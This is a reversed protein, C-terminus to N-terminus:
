GELVDKVQKLLDEPEFPKLLFRLEKKWGERLRQLNEEAGTIFLTKMEPRAEVLTVALELGTIEPMDFDTVLLQIGGEQARAVELAQQGSGATLVHYGASGLVEEVFNRVAEDDDVVLVTGKEPGELHLAPFYLDFTTGEGAQSQLQLFGGSQRVFAEVLALGLGKSGPKTSFFPDFVRQQIAPELGVGTDKIRLRVYRKPEPGPTEYRSTSIELSGGEPMADWANRTLELIVEQVRQVDTEVPWVWDGLSLNLRIRETALQDRLGLIVSNLNCVEPHLPERGALQRLVRILEKGREMASMISNARRLVKEDATGSRLLLEAHGSVATVMNALEHALGRYARTITERPLAEAMEPVEAEAAELEEVQALTGVVQGGRDRIESLLASVEVLSGDKRSLRIQLRAQGKGKQVIESLGEEFRGKEPEPLIPLPYGLVENQAWGFFQEALRNWSIVDGKRNVAFAVSPWSKIVSRFTESTEELLRFTSRQQIVEALVAAVSRLLDIEQQQFPEGTTRYVELVGFPRVGASIIATASSVVDYDPVPAEEEGERRRGVPPRILRERTWDSGALPVVGEPRYECIRCHSVRLPTRLLDVVREMIQPLSLPGLALRSIQASLMEARSAPSTAEEQGMGTLDVFASVVTQAGEEESPLAVESVLVPRRGGRKGRLVARFVAPGEGPPRVAGEEVEVLERYRVGALQTPDDVELLRCMAPNLYVTHERATTCWLGVPLRDLVRRSLRERHGAGTEKAPPNSFDALDRLYDATLLRRPVCYDAGSQHLRRTVEESVPSHVAVLPIERPLLQRIRSVQRCEEETGTGLVLLVMELGVGEDLRRELRDPDVWEVRLLRGTEALSARVQFGEEPSLQVALIRIPRDSM